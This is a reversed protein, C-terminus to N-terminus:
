HKSKNFYRSFYGKRKNDNNSFVFKGTRYVEDVLEKLHIYAKDRMIKLNSREKEEGRAKALLFSIETAENAAQDLKSEDFNIATLLPLNAKGLSSLDSLDQIMDANRTGKKIEEVKNLLLPKEHFAFLFSRELEIKLEKAQECKKDWEVESPVKAFRNNVWVSQAYSLAGMRQTFEEFYKLGVAQLKEQDAKSWRYLNRAEQLYVDIPMKPAKAEALPIAEIRDKLSEFDKKSM